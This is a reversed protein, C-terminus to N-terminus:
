SVQRALREWGGPAVEGVTLFGEGDPRFVVTGGEEPTSGSAPRLNTIHGVLVTNTGDDPVSSLLARVADIERGARGGPVPLLAEEAEVEGFALEATEVTRCYPSALVRGISIDLDRLARGIARAELRGAETLGRQQDCPATPVGDPADEQTATHRLYLVLGGDRLAEILRKGTLPGEPEPAALGGCGALLLLCLLVRLVM